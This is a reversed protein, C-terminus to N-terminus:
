DEVLVYTTGGFAPRKPACPDDASDDTLQFKLNTGDFTYKYRGPVPCDGNNTQEMFLDGNVRFTGEALLYAWYFAYWTGDQDPYLGAGHIKRCLLQVAECGFNIGMLLHMELSLHM